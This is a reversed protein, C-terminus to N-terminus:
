LSLLIAIIRPMHRQFFRVLPFLLYALLASFGILVIPTIIKDLGWLIVAALGIWGLVTMIIFFRRQWINNSPIAHVTVPDNVTSMTSERKERHSAARSVVAAELLM